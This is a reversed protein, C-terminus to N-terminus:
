ESKADHTQLYKKIIHFELFVRFKSLRIDLSKTDFFKRHIDKKLM